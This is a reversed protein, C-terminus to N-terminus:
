ASRSLPPPMLRRLPWARREQNAVLFPASENCQTVPGTRLSSAPFARASVPRYRFGVYCGKWTDLHKLNLGLIGATNFESRLCPTKGDNCVDYAWNRPKSPPDEASRRPPAGHFFYGLSPLIFFSNFNTM